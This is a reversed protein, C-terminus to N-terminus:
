GSASWTKLRTAGRSTTCKPKHQQQNHTDNQAHASNAHMQARRRCARRRRPSRCSSSCPALARACASSFFACWLHHGARRPLLQQHAHSLAGAGGHGVRDAQRAARQHDHVQGPLRCRKTNQKDHQASLQVRLSGISKSLHSQTHAGREAGITSTTVDDFRNTTFRMLLCSKGVGSDGVLLVKPQKARLLIPSRAGTQKKTAGAERM